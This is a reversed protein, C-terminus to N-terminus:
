HQHEQQHKMFDDVSMEKYEVKFADKFFQVLKQNYVQDNIRQAEEKNKLVNEAIGDMEEPPMVQGYQSMQAAILQKTYDVLEEQSVSLNNEKILRNEILQWRLGNLTKPFEEEVEEVSLPKEGATRMWKKLFEEPLDFKINDLFYHHAHHFFDSDSQGVFSKEAEEKLKARFEKEDKVAGEGFVKDFLEQNLEASEMRSVNKLTFTFEGESADLKADTVGLTGAVNFGERFAKKVNFQISDGVKAAVLSKLVKKDTISNGIFSAEKTTGGEVANGDADVEVFEGAFMDGEEAKEPTIMKGYRKAVDEVYSNIMKDDAVVKNYVLKAKAPITVDINPTMGLEFEFAFDKQNDWDIDTQEVPMPNGLIDLKEETLYKYVGDQLAKNVEEIVMGKYYQKRVLGAPVKGKRFGPIAANKRYNALATEVKEKYDEEKIEVTLVANLEDINKHTVNM